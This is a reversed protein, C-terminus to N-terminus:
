TLVAQRLRACARCRRWGRYNVWTNEVTFEHGRICHTKHRNGNNTANDVNTLLRLHWPNVCRRNRCIHDVTMGEPIEGWCAIWEVRHCLTVIRKGEDHWGIQAYGHSGTSYTSTHCDGPGAVVRSRVREIVRDPITM